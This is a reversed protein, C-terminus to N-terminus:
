AKDIAIVPIVKLAKLQEKISSM